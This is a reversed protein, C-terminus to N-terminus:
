NEMFRSYNEMYRIFSHFIAKTSYIDVIEIRWIENIFCLIYM